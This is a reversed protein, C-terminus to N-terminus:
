SLCQDVSYWDRWWCKWNREQRSIGRTTDGIPVKLNEIKFSRESFSDRLTERFKNLRIATIANMKWTTKAGAMAQVEYATMLVPGTSHASAGEGSFHKKLSPLMICSSILLFVESLIKLSDDAARHASEQNSSLAATFNHTDRFFTEGSKRNKSGRRDRSSLSYECKWMLLVPGRPSKRKKYLKKKRLVDM